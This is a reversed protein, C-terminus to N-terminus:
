AGCIGKVVKIADRAAAIDHVRLISAGNQLAITHASITAALREEPVTHETLVGLFSKRSLGMVIPFGLSTFERLRRILATNDELRKGFGIGPDLTISAHPIGHALAVQAQAQFYEYVEQMVDDYHPDKQMDKPTGKSHMLVCGAGHRAIVEAMLPDFRLGSIDNICDAGEKLANDAIASKYTDISVPIEPAYKKVAHLAPIIRRLEEDADVPDSGPRTSEAGIDVIDVGEELMATIRAHLAGSDKYAGGDYFSDPTVNLIGMIKPETCDIYKKGCQWLHPITVVHKIDACLTKLSFPQHQLRASLKDIQRRTLLLIVDTREPKGSIASRPVVADAGISLMEQKLINAAEIKLDRIKVCLLDKKDAFVKLAYPDVDIRRLEEQWDTHNPYLIRIRDHNNKVVM